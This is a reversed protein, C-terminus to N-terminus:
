LSEGKAEQMQSLVQSTLLVADKVKMGCCFPKPCEGHLIKRCTVGGYERKFRDIAHQIREFTLQRKEPDATGDCSYYSIIATVAALAGCIGQTGGMGGGFGEMLRCATNADIRMEEAFASFVAQSCTYGERYSQAAMKLKDHM